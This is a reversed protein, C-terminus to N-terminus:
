LYVHDGWQQLVRSTVSEGGVVLTQLDPVDSPRLQSAVTTTLCAHNAKMRVISGALDNLRDHESPVCICGGYMLTTFIDSFSDDFTYAAFQITRTHKGFRMAEGHDRVSTCMAQHEIIIGKPQGTSGSTFVAFAVNEPGVGTNPSDGDTDDSPLADITTPSVIIVDKNLERCLDQYTESCVVLPAQVDELIALHRNRPHEPNLPVCAGGSKLVALMAVIAWVSKEFCLPVIVEPGVGLTILRRALRNSIASLERYSLNGDWACVAASEPSQRAQREVELHVCDRVPAPPNQNWREIDKMDWSCVLDLDGVVATPSADKLQNVVHIFQRFLRQTRTASISSGSPYFGLEVGIDRPSAVLVLHPCSDVETVLEQWNKIYRKTEVILLKISSSSLGSPSNVPLQLSLQWFKSGHCAYAANEVKNIITHIESDKIVSVLYKNLDESEQNLFIQDLVVEENNSFKSNLILLAAAAM